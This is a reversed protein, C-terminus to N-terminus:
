ADAKVFGETWSDRDLERPHIQFGEPYDAFGPKIRLREITTRASSETQYVGILLGDDNEVDEKAIFWLLYVMSAM